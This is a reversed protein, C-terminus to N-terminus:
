NKAEHERQEKEVVAACFWKMQPDLNLNALRLDDQQAEKPRTDGGAARDPSRGRDDRNHGRQDRGNGKEQSDRSDRSNRSDRSDRGNRSDRSDRDNRSDRRDQSDQRFRDRSDQRGYSDNGRSDGNRQGSFGRNRNDWRDRSDRRNRDYSDGRSRDYSGRRDRDYSDRRNRDYGDRRNRDTSDFNREYRNRDFSDRRNGGYGDRRSRDDSRWGRDYSADRRNRDYSDRQDRERSYDGSGRYSASPDRSRSVSRDDPRRSERSGDSKLSRVDTDLNGMKVVMEQISLEIAKLRDDSMAAGEFAVARGPGEKARGSTATTTATEADEGDALAMQLRLAVKKAEGITRNDEDCGLDITRRYHKPLAARFRFFDQQEWVPEQDYLRVSRRVRTALSHFSERGDWTITTRHAQWNYKDQPDILLDRFETKLEQWGAVAGAAGGASAAAVAAAGAAACNSYITRARTDLKIPLWQRFLVHLRVDDTVGTALRVADEFLKVWEGFDDKDANFMDVPISSTARENAMNDVRLGSYIM